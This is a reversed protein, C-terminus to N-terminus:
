TCACNQDVRFVVEKQGGKTQTLVTDSATFSLRRYKHPIV